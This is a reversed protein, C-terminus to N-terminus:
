RVILKIHDTYKNSKEKKSSRIKKLVRFCEVYVVSAISVAVIIFIIPIFVVSISFQEKYSNVLKLEFAENRDSLIEFSELIGKGYYEQVIIDSYNYPAYDFTLKSGEVYLDYEVECYDDSELVSDELDEM